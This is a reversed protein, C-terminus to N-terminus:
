GGGAGGASINTDVDRDPGHPSGPGCFWRIVRRWLSEEEGTHPQCVGSSKQSISAHVPPSAAHGTAGPGAAPGGQEPPLTRQDATDNEQLSSPQEAAPVSQRSTTGSGHDEEGTQANSVNVMCFAMAAFIMFRAPFKQPFFTRKM